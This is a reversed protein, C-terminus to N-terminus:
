DVNKEMKKLSSCSFAVAGAVLLASMRLLSSRMINNSNLKFKM